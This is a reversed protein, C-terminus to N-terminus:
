LVSDDATSRFLMPVCRDVGDRSSTHSIDPSLINCPYECHPLSEDSRYLIFAQVSDFAASLHAEVLHKGAAENLYDQLGDCDRLGGHFYTRWAFNEGISLPRAPERALFLGNSDLVFWNYAPEAQKQQERDQLNQLGKHLLKRAAHSQLDLKLAKRDNDDLGPDNLKGRLDETQHITENLLKVFRPDKIVDVVAPM